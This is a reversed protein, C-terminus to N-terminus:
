ELYITKISGIHEDLMKIFDRKPENDESEDENIMENETNDIDVILDILNPKSNRIM